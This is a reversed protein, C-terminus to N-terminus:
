RCFSGISPLPRIGHAQASNPQPATMKTITVFSVFHTSAIVTENPTAMTNSDITTSVPYAPCSESACYEIAPKPANTAPRSTATYSM